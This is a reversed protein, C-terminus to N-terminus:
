LEFPKGCSFSGLLSGLFAIIRIRAVGFDNQAVGLDIGRSNLTYDGIDDRM